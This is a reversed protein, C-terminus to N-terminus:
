QNDLLFDRIMDIDYVPNDQMTLHSASENIKLISNPILDRYKEASSELVEDYKGIIILTPVKVLTLSNLCSYEIFKGTPTFENPGWLYNYVETGLEEFTQNIEQSWPLKRAVYQQYFYGVAESYDTSSFDNVQNAKEIANKYKPPMNSILIDCDSVWIATDIFPSSLIIKKINEAYKLYYEISFAAGFSQGYIHFKTLKYYKRVEEIQKVFFDVDLDDVDINRSSRGGGIQDFFIVFFKKSLEELPKLYYSPAGPGGHVFIIAESNPNGYSETWIKYNGYKIYKEEM